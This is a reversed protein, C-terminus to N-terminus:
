QTLYYAYLFVLLGVGLLWVYISTPDASIRRALDGAAARTAEDDHSSLERARKRVYGYNGGAFADLLAAIEPTKPYNRAFRPRSAQQQAARSQRATAREPRRKKTKKAKPPV